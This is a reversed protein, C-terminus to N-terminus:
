TYWHPAVPQRKQIDLVVKLHEYRLPVKRHNALLQATKLLNKIQRGNLDVEALVELQKEDIEHEIGRKLFNVWIHKKSASNLGPYDMSVHIRSQFATDMDEVRNTTLFLIGQYYELTRLFISVLQNRQLDHTSRAELFVDCEDLLLIANRRLNASEQFKHLHRFRQYRVM